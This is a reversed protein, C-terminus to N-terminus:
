FPWGSQYDYALVGDFTDLAAVADRHKGSAGAIAARLANFGAANANVKAVLAAVSVGRSVSEAAISPCDAEYQSVGYAIAEARLISWGSMEAASIGAVAADFKQKALDNIAAIVEAKTASLPYANIIAQVAGVDNAVWQNNIQEIHHGARMIAIHLGYGKELYNIM